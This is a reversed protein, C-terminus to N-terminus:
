IMSFIFSFKNQAFHYRMEHDAKVAKNAINKSKKRNNRNKLSIVKVCWRSCNWMALKRENERVVM